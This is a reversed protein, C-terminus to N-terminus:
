PQRREPGAARSDSRSGPLPTYAPDVTAVVEASALCPLVVRWFRALSTSSLWSPETRGLAEFGATAAAICTAIDLKSLGDLLLDENDAKALLRQICDFWEGRLDLGSREPTECSLHFGASVVIDNRFREALAQSVSTLRQLANMGPLQAARAAHRLTAAARAEVVSALAAKTEFHFHLAGATVGAGSSIDALSAQVYGHGEFAEAASRILAQRTRVAREQKM